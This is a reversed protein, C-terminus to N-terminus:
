IYVKLRYNRFYKAKLVIEKFEVISAFIGKFYGGKVLMLFLTLNDRENWFYM